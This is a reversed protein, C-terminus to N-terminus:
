YDKLEIRTVGKDDYITIEIYYGNDDKYSYDWYKLTDSRYPETEPKGFVAEVDEVTSGWTIGGPLIFEPYKKSKSWRIDLSVSTIQCDRIDKKEESNNVFGVWFDVENDMDESSLAITGSVRDGPALEYGEEEDYGYDELSFTYKDSIKSYDFPIVYVTGDLSFQKSYPDDSLDTPDAQAETTEETDEDKDDTVSGTVTNGTNESEEEFTQYSDENFELLFWKDDVKMVKFTFTSSGADKKFNYDTFNVTMTLDRVEDAKDKKYNWKTLIAYRDSESYASGNTIVASTKDYEKVFEKDSSILNNANNVFKEKEEDNVENSIYYKLNSADGKNYADIYALAIDDPKNAGDTEKPGAMFVFVIILAAAALFTGACISFIIWFKKKGKKNDDSRVTDLVPGPVPRQPYTNQVPTPNYTMQPKGMPQQSVRSTSEPQSNDHSTESQQTTVGPTSGPKPVVQPNSVPQHTRSDAYPNQPRPAWQESQSTNNQNSYPVQSRSAQGYPPQSNGPQGYPRQNNMPQGYPQQVNGRQGYSQQVNMPQGYPQQVNMPQGYPQQVNMPQGYPQQVNMPQGYPQQVNGPYGSSHQGYPSQPQAFPNNVQSSSSQKKKEEEPILAQHSPDQSLSEPGNYVENEDSM